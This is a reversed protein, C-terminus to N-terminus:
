FSNLLLKKNIKGLNTKPFKNILFIKDPMQFTSLKKLCIKKIYDLNIKQNKKVFLYIKENSVTKVGMVAVEEINKNNLFINEIDEPYITVGSRRIINKKRGLFYLYKEEDLFGIDGTKFFGKYFSKKTAEKLGLYKKFKANTKCVIEGKQKFELFRKNESLIKIVIKKNYSKGVSQIKNKEKVLNISTATGIESAGYMEYLNIKQKIIKKKISNALSSSASVLGKALYLKSFKRKDKMLDYIQSSVLISFDVNNKEVMEFYKGRSFREMLVCTGGVVFPLFLLRMGLSHDIPCTVIVKNKHNIKYLQNMLKSRLIKIKQSFVIPKPNGTSGSSLLILFDKNIDTKNNLKKNKIKEYNHLYSFKKSKDTTIIKKLKARKKYFAADKSNSILTQIKFRKLNIIVWDKSYQSSLPVIKSGLRALSFILLVYNLSNDEIIAVTSKKGINNKKLVFVIKVVKKFLEEYSLCLNDIILASKKPFDIANKKLIEFLGM